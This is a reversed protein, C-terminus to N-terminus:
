IRSVTKRNWQLRHHYVYEFDNQFIVVLIFLYFVVVDWYIMNYLLFPFMVLAVAFRNNQTLILFLLFLLQAIMLPVGGAMGIALISNDSITVSHYIANTVDQFSVGIIFSESSSFLLNAALIVKIIRGEGISSQQYRYMLEAIEGPIILAAGVIILLLMMLGEIIKRLDLFRFVFIIVALICPYRSESLFVAGFITLFIIYDIIRKSNILKDSLYACLGICLIVAYNNANGLVSFERVRDGKELEVIEGRNAQELIALEPFFVSRVIGLLAIIFVSYQLCWLAREKDISVIVFALLYYFPISILIRNEFLDRVGQEFLISRLLIIMVALYLMLSGYQVVRIDLYNALSFTLLVISTLLVSLLYVNKGFLDFPYLLYLFTTQPFFLILGICALQKFNMDFRM